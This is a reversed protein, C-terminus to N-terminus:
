QMVGMVSFVAVRVGRRVQHQLTDNVFYSDPIIRPRSSYGEGRGSYSPVNGDNNHVCGGNIEWLSQLVLVAPASDIDNAKSTLGYTLYGQIVLVVRAFYESPYYRLWGFLQQRSTRPLALIGSVIREAV